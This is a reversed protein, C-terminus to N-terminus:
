PRSTILLSPTLAMVAPGNLSNAQPRLGYKLDLVLTLSKYNLIVDEFNSLRV